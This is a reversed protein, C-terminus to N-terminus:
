IKLPNNRPQLADADKFEVLYRRTAQLRTMVVQAMRQVLDYGLDPDNECAVLLSAGDVFIARTPLLARAQFHWTFPPFLWSWGLVDGGTLIQVPIDGDRAVHSELSVRGDLLLFFAYAAENERFLIQGEKLEVERAHRALVELHEAKFGKLFPHEAIKEKIGNTALLKRM